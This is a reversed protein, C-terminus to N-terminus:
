ATWREDHLPGRLLKRLTEYARFARQKVAGETTGLVEAIEAFSMQEFRHLHLVARQSEPLRELAARVARTRHADLSVAESEVAAVDAMAEQQLESALPLRTRRRLEDHLAHAAISFLWSRLSLLPRFSSRARHINLFTVQLLDDAAQPEGLARVFFGHIRPAWRRFLVAFSRRDGGAYAAM